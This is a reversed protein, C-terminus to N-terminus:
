KSSNALDPGRGSASRGVHGNAHNAAQRALMANLGSEHGHIRIGLSSTRSDHYSSSSSVSDDDTDSELFVLFFFLVTISVFIYIM